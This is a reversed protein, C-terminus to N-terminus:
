ALFRLTNEVAFERLDWPQDSLGALEEKKFGEQAGRRKVGSGGAITQAM